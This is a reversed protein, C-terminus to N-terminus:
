DIQNRAKSARLRRGYWVMGDIKKVARQAEAEDPMHIFAFGNSKDTEWDCQIFVSEVYGFKGFIFKLDAEDTDKDFNGVYINM